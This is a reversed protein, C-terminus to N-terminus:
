RSIPVWASNWSSTSNRSRASATTSSCCRKPTCWRRASARLPSATSTSTIVAVGIGRVGPASRNRRCPRRALQALLRGSALRDVGAGHRERPEVLHDVATPRASSRPGLPDVPHARQDASDSFLSRAAASSRKATSLCCKPSSTSRTCPRMFPASLSRAMSRKADPSVGAARRWWPSRPRRRRAPPSRSPSRARRASRGPAAGDTARGPRGRRRASSRGAARCARREARGGLRPERDHALGLVAEADGLLVQASRPSPSTSPVRCDPM